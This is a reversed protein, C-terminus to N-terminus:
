HATDNINFVFVPPQFEFPDQCTRISSEAWPSAQWVVLGIIFPLAVFWTHTTIVGINWLAASYGVATFGWIIHHCYPEPTFKAAQTLAIKAVAIESLTLRSLIPNSESFGSSFGIQTTMIDAFQGRDATSCGFLHILIFGMIFGLLWYTLFRKSPWVFNYKCKKNIFNYLSHVYEKKYIFLFSLFFIYIFFGLLCLIGYLFLVTM